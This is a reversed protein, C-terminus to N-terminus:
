DNLLIDFAKEPDHTSILVSFLKDVCEKEKYFDLKNSDPMILGAVKRFYWAFAYVWEGHLQEEWKENRKQAIVTDYKGGRESRKLSYLFGFFDALGESVRKDKFAIHADSNCQQYDLFHAYEHALVQSIIAKYEAWWIADVSKYYLTIYPKTEPHFMGLVTEVFYWLKEAEENSIKKNKKELESRIRYYDKESRRYRRTVRKKSLVIPIRQLEDAFYDGFLERVFGIVCEYECELLECLGPIREEMSVDNEYKVHVTDYDPGYEVIKDKVCFDSKVFEKLHRIGSLYKKLTSQNIGAGGSSFAKPLANELYDCLLIQTNSQMGSAIIELFEEGLGSEKCACKIYSWSSEASGKSKTPSCHKIYYDKFKEGFITVISKGM